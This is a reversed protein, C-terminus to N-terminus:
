KLNFTKAVEKYNTLDVNPNAKMGSAPITVVKFQQGGPNNPMLGNSQSIDVQVNSPQMAYAFDLGSKSFPMAIWVNGSGDGLYVMVAGNSIVDSTINTSSHNYYYSASSTSQVWQNSNTTFTETQVTNNNTGQQVYKNDADKKTIYDKKCGVLATM